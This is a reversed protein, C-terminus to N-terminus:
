SLGSVWLITFVMHIETAGVIGLIAIPWNKYYVGKPFLLILFFLIGSSGFLGSLSLRRGCKQVMYQSLFNAPIGLASAIVFNFFISGTVDQWNLNLGYIIFSAAMWNFWMVVARKLLIPSRMSKLFNERPRPDEKSITVNEARTELGNKEAAEDLITMATRVHSEKATSILWRPSEPVFYLVIPTLIHVGAFLQFMIKYDRLLYAAL